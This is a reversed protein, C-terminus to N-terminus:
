KFYISYSTIYNANVTKFIASNSKVCSFKEDNSINSPAKGTKSLFVSVIPMHRQKTVRLEMYLKLYHSKLKRILFSIPLCNPNHHYRAPLMPKMSRRRKPPEYAGTDLSLPVPWAFMRYFTYRLCFVWAMELLLSPTIITDCLTICYYNHTAKCHEQKSFTISKLSLKM